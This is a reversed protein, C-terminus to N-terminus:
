DETEAMKECLKLIDEISMGEYESADPMEDRSSYLPRSDNEYPAENVKLERWRWVGCELHMMAHTKMLTLMWWMTERANPCLRISLHQHARAPYLEPLKLGNMDSNVTCKLIPWLQELEIRAQRPRHEMRHLWLLRWGKRNCRRAFAMGMRWRRGDLRDFRSEWTWWLRWNCIYMQATKGM